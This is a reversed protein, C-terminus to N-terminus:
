PQPQILAAWNDSTVSISDLATGSLPTPEWAVKTSMRLQAAAIAKETQQGGPVYPNIQFGGREVEGPSMGLNPNDTAFLAELVQQILIRLRVGAAEDAQIVEPGSADAKGRVEMDVIYPVEIDCHGESEEVSTMDGLYVFVNAIESSTSPLERLRNAFVGFQEDAPQAESYVKLADVIKGFLLDFTGQTAM